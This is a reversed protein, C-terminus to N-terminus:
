AAQVLVLFGKEEVKDLLMDDLMVHADDFCTLMCKCGCYSQQVTWKVHLRALWAAESDAPPLRSCWRQMAVKLWLLHQAPGALHSADARLLSFFSLPTLAVIPLLPKRPVVRISEKLLAALSM